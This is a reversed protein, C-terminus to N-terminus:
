SCIPVLYIFKISLTPSNTLFFNSIFIAWNLDWKENKSFHGLKERKNQLCYSSVQTIEKWGYLKEFPNQGRGLYTLPHEEFMGTFTRVM